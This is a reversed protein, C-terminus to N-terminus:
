HNIFARSESNSDRTLEAWMKGFSRASVEPYMKGAETILGRIEKWGGQLTGDFFARIYARTVALTQRKGAWVEPADSMNWLSTDSFDLHEIGIRAVNVHASGGTVSQMLRTTEAFFEQYLAKPLQARELETDNLVPNQKEVWMFPQQGGDSGKIPQFGRGRINGDLNIAGRFRVDLLRVTGAAQGGRSHGPRPWADLRGAM